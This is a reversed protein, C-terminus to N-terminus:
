SYVTDRHEIKAVVIANPELTYVLRYKGLRESWYDKFGHSLHKALDPDEALRELRKLIQAQITKDLKELQKLAKASYRILFTM